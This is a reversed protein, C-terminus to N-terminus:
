PSLGENNVVVIKTGFQNCFQEFWEFGFRIFRDKHAVYIIEIKSEM